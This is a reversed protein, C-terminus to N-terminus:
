GPDEVWKEGRPGVAGSESEMEAAGDHIAEPSGNVAAGHRSFEGFDDQFEGTQLTFRRLM